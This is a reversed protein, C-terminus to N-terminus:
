LSSQDKATDGTAASLVENVIKQNVHVPSKHAPDESSTTMNDPAVNRSLFALRTDMRFKLRHFKILLDACLHM